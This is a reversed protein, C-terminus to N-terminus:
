GMHNDLDGWITQLYELQGTHTIRHEKAIGIWFSTPYDGVPSSTSAEVTEATVTDFAALLATTSERLLAMGDQRSAVSPDAKHLDAFFEEVTPMASPMTGGIVNAFFRDSRSVHTLLRLTSKSTPSPSWGLKDDPVFSLLHLLRETSSQIQIKAKAVLEFTPELTIQM